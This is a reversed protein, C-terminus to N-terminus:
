LGVAPRQEDRQRQDAAQHHGLDRGAQDRASRVSAACM